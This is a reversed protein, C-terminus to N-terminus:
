ISKNRYFCVLSIVILTNPWTLAHLTPEDNWDTFIPGNGAERGM